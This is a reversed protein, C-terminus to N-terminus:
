KIKYYWLIDVVKSALCSTSALLILAAWPNIDLNNTLYIDMPVVMIIFVIGISVLIKYLTDLFTNM